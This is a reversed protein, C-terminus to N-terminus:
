KCDVKTSTVVQVTSGATLAISRVNDNTLASNCLEVVLPTPPTSNVDTNYPTLVNNGLYGLGDGRFRVTTSSLIQLPQEISAALAPHLTEAAGGGRPLYRVEGAIAAKCNSGIGSSPANDKGCLAVSQNRKVAEARAANIAGVWANTTTILENRALTDRFSPIAVTVLIVAVALTIMLEVLTFGSDSRVRM